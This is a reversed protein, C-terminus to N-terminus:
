KASLMGILREAMAKAFEPDNINHKMEVLEVKKPDITDRLAQFLAADAKPDHFSQGETDIMSVGGLPVFLVTPGTSRNLKNAIIKGLEACESVTTRM